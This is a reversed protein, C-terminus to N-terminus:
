GVWGGGGRVCEHLTHRFMLVFDPLVHPTTIHLLFHPSFFNPFFYLFCCVSINFKTVNVRYITHVHGLHTYKNEQEAIVFVDRQPCLHRNPHQEHNCVHMHRVKYTDRQSICILSKDVSMRRICTCLTQPKNPM